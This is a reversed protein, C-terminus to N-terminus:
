IKEGLQKLIQRVCSNWGDQRGADYNGGDYQRSETSGDEEPVLMEKCLALIRTTAEDVTKEDAWAFWVLDRVAEKFSKNM